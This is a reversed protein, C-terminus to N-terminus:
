EIVEDAGLLIAPPVVLGLAKATKLNVIFRLRTPQEFPLDKPLVGKLIRDVLSVIRDFTEERDPGYFMLAGEGVVLDPDEYVTPVAYTQAFDLIVKRNIITLGDAVVFIADPKNATLKAVLAELEKADHVGHPEVTLGLINAAASSQQYRLTMGADGSNWVMAVRRLSPIMEKMLQLRKPSLEATLDSIGTLHGGPRALSEVLGTLIPDGANFIVVPLRTASKAAYAAPFSTAIIVEAKSAEIDAFLGPFREFVGDPGRSEIVLNRGLVYGRKEFARALATWMPSGPPIARVKNILGVRYVREAASQRAVAIAALIALIQRRDIMPM